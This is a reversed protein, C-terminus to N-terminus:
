SRKYVIKEIEEATQAIDAPKLNMLRKQEAALEEETPPRDYMMQFVKQFVELNGQLMTDMDGQKQLLQTTLRDLRAKLRGM